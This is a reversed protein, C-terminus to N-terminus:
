PRIRDLAEEDCVIDAWSDSHNATAQVPTREPPCAGASTYNSLFCRMAHAVGLTSINRCDAEYYANGSFSGTILEYSPFYDVWEHSRWAAEAAVRLVSKSYTNSVLVHRPEFTAILPVPSVTLIVRIGPNLAKLRRLLLDLDAINESVDFNVFEHRDADYEGATIGPAQPYVTGDLRSRWAETLGLTFIFVQCQEFMQRVAALHLRREGRVQTESDYGASTVQPRLADVFRGDPRRWVDEAVARGDICEIFLQLLQRVTYINGFRAPFVGYSLARRQDADLHLGPETLFPEFGAAALHRSIHQAFCSGATAVREDLAIGLRPSVVPDVRFSETASVADRWFQHGPLGQYPHASM